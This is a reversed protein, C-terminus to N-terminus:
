LSSFLEERLRQNEKKRKMKKYEPSNKIALNVLDARKIEIGFYFGRMKESYYQLHWNDELETRIKDRKRRTNYNSIITCPKYEDIPLSKRLGHMRAFLLEYNSKCYKKTGLISKLSLFALLCVKEFETKSEDLYFEVLMKTAIGTMPSNPYSFFLHKGDIIHSETLYAVEFFSSAYNLKEDMTGHYDKSIKYVSYSIIKDFTDTIPQDFFGNLLEIPFNFYRM